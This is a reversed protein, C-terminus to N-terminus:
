ERLCFELSIRFVSTMNMAYPSVLFNVSKNVIINKIRDYFPNFYDKCLCNNIAVGDTEIDILEDYQQREDAKLILIAILKKLQEKHLIIKSSRESINKLFDMDNLLLDTTFVLLHEKFTKETDEGEESKTSVTPSKPSKSALIIPGMEEDQCPTPPRSLPSHIINLVVNNKASNSTTANVKKEFSLNLSPLGSM